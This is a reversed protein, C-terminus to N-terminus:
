VRPTADCGSWCVFCRRGCNCGSWLESDWVFDEVHDIITVQLFITM